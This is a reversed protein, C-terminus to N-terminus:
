EMLADPRGAQPVDLPPRQPVRLLAGAPPRTTRAILFLAFLVVSAALQFADPM